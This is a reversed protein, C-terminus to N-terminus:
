TGSVRRGDSAEPLTAADRFPERTAVWAAYSAVTALRRPTWRQGCTRCEWAFQASASSIDTYCLPCAVRERLQGLSEPALSASSRTALQDIDYKPIIRLM